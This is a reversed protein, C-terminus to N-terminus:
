FIRQKITWNLESEYDTPMTTNPIFKNNKLLDIAKNLNFRYVYALVQIINNFKKDLETM